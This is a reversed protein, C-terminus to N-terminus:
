WLNLFLDGLANIVEMDINLFTTRFKILLDSYNETGQKGKVVETYKELNDVRNNQSFLSNSTSNSTSSTQTESVNANTLYTDNKLNEITGQPTDSYRSDSETGIKSSDNVANSGTSEGSENKNSSGDHTRTVEVDYFPNFELLESKYLQNYYPMVENLKTELFMKWLAITEFGIERTYYHRLIKTELVARYKEDFIPYSFDFIKERAKSIVDNVQTLGVSTDLGAFTECIFRIETTYKSM